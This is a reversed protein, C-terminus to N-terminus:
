FSHSATSLRRQHTRNGDMGAMSLPETYADLIEVVQGILITAPPAPRERACAAVIDGLRGRVVKQDPLSAASIVAVPMTEGLVPLLEAVIGPLEALGMMVVLTDASRALGALREGGGPRATAVAFSSAISRFTLPIGALEPASVASTLGPIVIVDIGAESLAKMEEGGRGFVFPDGGKLRVVELGERASEIMLREIEAQSAQEGGGRKGVAVLRAQAGCLKLLEPAVLADHYVVDADLLRELAALTLLGPDGPGAGVLAVRGPPREPGQSELSAFLFDAEEHRGGALLARARSRLLRRYVATQAALSDKRARLRRRLGGVRAVFPGWEAGFERELRARIRSALFPSEGSTSIAILLPDRDVVAPAIFRCRAPRDVVNVLIGAAEAERWVEANLAEDGSADIVLRAGALCGPRYEPATLREVSAGALRLDAVKQDALEGEGLVLCRQSRLDVFLPYYRVEALGAELVAM